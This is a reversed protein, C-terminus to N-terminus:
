GTIWPTVMEGNPLEAEFRFPLAPAAVAVEGYDDTRMEEIQEDTVVRCPVSLPPEIMVILTAPTLHVRVVFEDVAFRFSRRDSATGRVGILEENASDFLLEALAADARRWEFASRAAAQLKSPVPPLRDFADNIRDLLEDPTELEDNM